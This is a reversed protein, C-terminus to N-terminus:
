ASSGTITRAVGSVVCAAAIAALLAVIAVGYPQDLITPNLAGKGPPRPLAVAAGLALVTVGAAAGCLAGPWWTPPLVRLAGHGLLLLLPQIVGDHVIVIALAWVAASILDPTPLDEIALSLGYVILALGVVVLVVQLGKLGPSLPQTQEDTM